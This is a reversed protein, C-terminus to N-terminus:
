NSRTPNASPTTASSESSPM